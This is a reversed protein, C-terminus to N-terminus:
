RRTNAASSTSGVTPIMDVFARWGQEAGPRNAALAGGCWIIPTRGQVSSRAWVRQVAVAIGMLPLRVNFYPPPVFLRERPIELRLGETSVDIIHSPVGNVIADFRNAIKRASRRAPRGDMIAMSVTCVFTGRELPRALYMSVADRPDAAAGNGIVVTPTLPNCGRSAALLGDRMAITVDAVLLGFPRTRMEEAATRPSPCRVPEFGETVLWEAVTACETADPLVLIIRPRDAMGSTNRHATLTGASFM